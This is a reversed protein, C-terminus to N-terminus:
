FVTQRFLDALVKEDISLTLYMTWFKANGQLDLPYTWEGESNEFTFVRKYYSTNQTKLEPECLGILESSSYQDGQKQMPIDIPHM